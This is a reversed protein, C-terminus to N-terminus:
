PGESDPRHSLGGAGFGRLSSTENPGEKSTDIRPSGMKPRTLYQRHEEKTSKIPSGPPSEPSTGRGSKSPTEGGAKQPAKGGSGAKGVGDEFVPKDEKPGQGKEDPLDRITPLPWGIRQKPSGLPRTHIIKFGPPPQPPPNPKTGPPGGPYKPPAIPLRSHGIGFGGAPRQPPSNGSKPSGTRPLLNIATDDVNRVNIYSDFEVDRSVHQLQDDLYAASLNIGALTIIASSYRM